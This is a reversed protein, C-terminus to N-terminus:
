GLRLLQMAGCKRLRRRACGRLPEGFLMVFPHCDIPAYSLERDFDVIAPVPEAGVFRPDQWEFCLPEEFVDGGVHVARGDMAQLDKAPGQDEAAYKDDADVAVKGHRFEPAGQECEHSDAACAVDAEFEGFLVVSM